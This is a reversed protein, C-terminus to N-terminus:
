RRSHVTSIRRNRTTSTSTNRSVKVFGGRKRRQNNHLSITKIVIIAGITIFLLSWGIRRAIFWNMYNRLEESMADAISEPTHGEFDAQNVYYGVLPWEESIRNLVLQSEETSFHKNDSINSVLSHIYRNVDNTYSKITIAGCLLISQFSLFFFLICGTLISAITFTCNKWWLRILVYMLIIGAITLIVGLVLSGMSHLLINMLAGM